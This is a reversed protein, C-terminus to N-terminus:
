HNPQIYSNYGGGIVLNGNYDVPRGTYTQNLMKKLLNNQENILENQKEMLITQRRLELFALYQSSPNDKGFGSYSGAIHTWDISTQIGLNYYEQPYTVNEACVHPIFVAIMLAIILIPLSRM